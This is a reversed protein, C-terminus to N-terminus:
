RVHIIFKFFATDKSGRDQCFAAAVEARHRHPIAPGRAPLHAKEWVTRYRGTEEM